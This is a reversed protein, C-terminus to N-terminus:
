QGLLAKDLFAILRPERPSSLVERPKGSAVIEGSDLYDVRAAFQRIFSLQHSIFLIGVGTEAVSLLIRAVEAARVPDLNATAEDCILYRPGMAMARALCVRTLQGGSLEPPFKHLHTGLDLDILLDKALRYAQEQGLNLVHRPGETVQDIVRRYPPLARNQAVFGVLRRIRSAINSDPATSPGIVLTDVSVEGSEFSELGTLCRALVSKGSGSMGILGVLEGPALSFNVRKLVRESPFSKEIDKAILM